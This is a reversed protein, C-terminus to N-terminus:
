LRTKSARIAEALQYVAMAYLRSHNYRTIVYFNDFGFWYEESGDEHDLDILAALTSPSLNGSPMYGLDSYYRLTNKPKLSKTSVDQPNILTKVELAVAGGKGWHHVKLYNAVSAIADDAMMLDKSGSGGYSKAYALYSSPMFQCYGIAGAYSGKVAYVDLDEEDVLELFKELEAKFFSARKPYGFALTYLADLVRYSGIRQGFFTEVGIIGLIIEAPVGTEASVSALEAEHLKWFDVGAKIREDKMFISRYREWTMTGEAPKEMKDIISQQYEANNLIVTIEALSMDHRDSYSKAFEAVRAHDIQAFVLNISLALFLGLLGFRHFFKM